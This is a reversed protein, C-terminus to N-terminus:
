LSLNALSEWVSGIDLTVKKAPYPGYEVMVQKSTGVPATVVKANTYYGPEYEIIIEEGVSVKFPHNGFIAINSLGVVTQTAGKDNLSLIFSDTSTSEALTQKKWYKNGSGDEYQVLLVTGKPITAKRDETTPAPVTSRRSRADSTNDTTVGGNTAPATSKRGGAGSTGQLATSDLKTYEAAMPAASTVAPVAGRRAADASARGAPIVDSAKTAPEAAQTTDTNIKIIASFNSNLGVGSTNDQFDHSTTRNKAKVYLGLAIGDPENKQIKKLRFDYSLWEKKLTENGMNGPPIPYQDVSYPNDNRYVDGLFKYRADIISKCSMSLTISTNDDVTVANGGASLDVMPPTGLGKNGFDFIKLDGAPAVEVTTGLFGSGTVKAVISSKEAGCTDKGTELIISDITPVPAQIDLLFKAGTIGSGLLQTTAEVTSAPESSGRRADRTPAVTADSTRGRADSVKPPNIYYSKTAPEAMQTRDTVTVSFIFPCAMAGLLVEKENDLSGDILTVGEPLGNPEWVITGKDLTKGELNVNLLYKGDKSELPTASKIEERSPRKLCVDNVVSGKLSMGGKTFFFVGGLIVIIAAFAILKKGNGSSPTALPAPMNPTSTEM